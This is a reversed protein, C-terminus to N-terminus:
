GMLAICLVVVVSVVLGTIAALIPTRRQRQAWEILAPDLEELTRAGADWRAKFEQSTLPLPPPVWGM